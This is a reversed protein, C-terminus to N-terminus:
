KLNNLMKIENFTNIKQFGNFFIVNPISFVLYLSSILSNTRVLNIQNKILKSKLFYKSRHDIINKSNPIPIWYHIIPPINNRIKLSCIYNLIKYLIIDLNHKFNTIRSVKVVKDFDEFINQHSIFSSKIYGRKLLNKYKKLKSYNSM